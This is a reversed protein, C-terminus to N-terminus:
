LSDIFSPQNCLPVILLSLTQIIRGILEDMTKMGNCSNRVSALYASRGASDTASDAAGDDNLETPSTSMIPVRRPFTHHRHEENSESCHVLLYNAADTILMIYATHININHPTHGMAQKLM